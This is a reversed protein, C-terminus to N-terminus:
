RLDRGGEIDSLMEDIDGTPYSHAMARELALLKGQPTPGGQAKRARRLARRAWESLTLRERLAAQRLEELEEESM